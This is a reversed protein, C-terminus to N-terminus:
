ILFLGQIVPAFLVCSIALFQYKTVLNSHTPIILVPIEGLQLAQQATSSLLLRGLASHSKSRSGM